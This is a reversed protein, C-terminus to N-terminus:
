LPRRPGAPQVLARPLGEPAQAVALRPVDDGLARALQDAQVGKVDALELASWSARALQDAQVGKVDALELADALDPLDRGAIRRARITDGADQGRERVGCDGVEQPLDQQRGDAPSAPRELAHQGVAAALELGAEILGTGREANAVGPDLRAMGPGVAEDLPQLLGDEGFVPPHDKPPVVERTPRRQIATEVAEQLEVVEISRMLAISETAAGRRGDKVTGHRGRPLGM